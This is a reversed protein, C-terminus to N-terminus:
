SWPANRISSSVTTRISDSPEDGYECSGNRWQDRDQALRIWDQKKLIERLHTKFNDKWRSTLRGYSRKWDPKGVLHREGMHAVHYAGDGAKIVNPPPYLNCIEENYSKRSGERVEVWKSGFKRTIVRNECVRLV